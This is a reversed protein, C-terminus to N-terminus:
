KINKELFEQEFLINQDNELYEMLEALTESYLDNKNSLLNKLDINNNDLFENIVLNLEEKNDLYYKENIYYTNEDIIESNKVTIDGEFM